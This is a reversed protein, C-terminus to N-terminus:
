RSISMIKILVAISEAIQRILDSGTQGHHPRRSWERRFAGRRAAYLLPAKKLLILFTRMQYRGVGCTFTDVQLARMQHDVIVQRPVRVPEFLAKATDM